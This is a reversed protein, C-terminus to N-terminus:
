EAFAPNEKRETVSTATVFIVRKAGALFLIRACEDGTAGTTMIDDFVVVTKGECAKRKHVRYAGHVNDFREKANMRKQPRTDRNKQMIEGDFSRYLNKCVREGIEAAPNYWREREKIREEKRDPVCTFVIEEKEIDIAANKLADKVLPALANAFLGALYKDGNKLRNIHSAAITEYPYASLAFDFTPMHAKCELCVGETTANRGCKQCRHSFIPMKKNCDECLRVEPYTFIERGCHDCTCGHNERFDSYKKILKEIPAWM